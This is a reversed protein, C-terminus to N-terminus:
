IKTSSFHSRSFRYMMWLYNTKIWSMRNPNYDPAGTFMNHEVAYDAIKNNFAQYVVISDADFNALIHKGETPWEERARLYPETQIDEM